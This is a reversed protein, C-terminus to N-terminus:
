DHRLSQVPDVRAARRSPLAGAMLSVAVGFTVALLMLWIPMSFVEMPPQGQKEMWMKLFVSAVRTLLWGLILGVVGGVFGVAGSEALFLLQIQRDDAGLSKLVGIERYRETISMIMTNAIGLSAVTLALFGIAGLMADFLLFAKKMQKFDDVLSFTRYGRAELTDRVADFERYSKLRVTLSSYGPGGKRIQSLLDFASRFSIKDMEKATGFPVLLNRSELDRGGLSGILGCVTFKYRKERFPSMKGGSMLMPLAASPNLSATVLEIEQGVISDPQKFGLRVALDHHMVVERATDSAFFRGQKIKNYPASKGMAALLAYASTNAERGRCEVRASFVDEPYVSVVGPIGSIDHMVSDNLLVVRDTTDAATHAEHEARVVSHPLIQLSTFLDMVQFNESIKQQMGVGFSLLSSLAMIGIVVGSITLLSRIKMRWLNGFSMGVVDKFTM